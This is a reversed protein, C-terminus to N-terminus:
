TRLHDLARERLREANREGQQALEIIKKAVQERLSDDSTAFGLVRCADEFARGMSAIAEPDFACNELLRHLQVSVERHQCLSRSGVAMGMAARLLAPSLFSKILAPGSGNM